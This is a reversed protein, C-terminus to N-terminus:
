KDNEPFSTFSILTREDSHKENETAIILVNYFSWANHIRIGRWSLTFYFKISSSGFKGSTIKRREKSENRKFILVVKMVKMQLKGGSRTTKKEDDEINIEFVM